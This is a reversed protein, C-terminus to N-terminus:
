NEGPLSRRPNLAQLGLNGILYYCGGNGELNPDRVKKRNPNLGLNDRVNFNSPNNSAKSHSHKSHKSHNNNRRGKSNSRNNSSNNRNNSNNRQSNNAASKNFANTRNTTGQENQERENGEGERNSNNAEKEKKNFFTEEMNKEVLSRLGIENNYDFNNKDDNVYINLPKIDTFEFSHRSGMYLNDLLDCILELIEEESFPENDAKREKILDQLSIFSPDLNYLVHLESTKDDNKRISIAHIRSTHPVFFNYNSKSLQDLKLNLQEPTLSSFVQQVYRKDPLFTDSMLSITCPIDHILDRGKGLFGSHTFIRRYASFDIIFINPDTM